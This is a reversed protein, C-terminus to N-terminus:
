GSPPEKISRVKIMRWTLTVHICTNLEKIDRHKHYLFLMYAHMSKKKNRMCVYLCICIVLTCNIRSNEMHNMLVTSFSFNFPRIYRLNQKILSKFFFFFFFQKCFPKLEWKPLAKNRISMPYTDVSWNLKRQIKKVIIWNPPQNEIKPNLAFNWIHM